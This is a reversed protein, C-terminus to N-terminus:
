DQGLSSGLSIVAQVGFLVGFLKRVIVLSSRIKIATKYVTQVPSIDLKNIGPEYFTVQLHLSFSSM